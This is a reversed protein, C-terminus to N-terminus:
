AVSYMFSQHGQAENPPILYSGNFAFHITYPFYDLDMPNGFGMDEVEYILSGNAHVIVPPILFYPFQGDGFCQTDVVRDDFVGMGGTFFWPTVDSNLIRFRFRRDQSGVDVDPPVSPPTTVDRTMGKLLFDSVGPLTLRQNTFVQNNFSITLEASFIQVREIYEIGDLTILGYPRGVASRVQPITVLSAM